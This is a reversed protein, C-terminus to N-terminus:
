GDAFFLRVEEARSSSLFGNELAYRVNLEAEGFTWTHGWVEGGGTKTIRGRVLASACFDYELRQVFGAGCRETIVVRRVPMISGARVIAPAFLFSATLGLVVGCRTPLELSRKDPRIISM